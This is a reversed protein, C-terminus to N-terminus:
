AGRIEKMRKANLSAGGNRNVEVLRSGSELKWGDVVLGCRYRSSVIRM